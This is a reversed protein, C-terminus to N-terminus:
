NLLRSRIGGYSIPSPLKFNMFDVADSTKVFKKLEKVDSSGTPNGLFSGISESNERLSRIFLANLDETELSKEIIGLLKKITHPITYGKYKVGGCSIKDAWFQMHESNNVDLKLHDILPKRSNKMIFKEASETGDKCASRFKETHECMSVIDEIRSALRTQKTIKNLYNTVKKMTESELSFCSYEQIDYGKERKKWVLLNARLESILTSQFEPSLIIDKINESSRSLTFPVYYRTDDRGLLIWSEDILGHISMATRFAQQYASNKFYLLIWTEGDRHKQIIREHSSSTDLLNAIIAGYLKDAIIQFEKSM